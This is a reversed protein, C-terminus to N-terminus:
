QCYCLLNRYSPRQSNSRYPQQTSWQYTYGPTGGMVTISADGTSDGNCAVDTQSTTWTLAPPDVLNFTATGQCSGGDVVTVTYSGPGLNRVTDNNPLGGSWTYTYPPLGGNPSAILM